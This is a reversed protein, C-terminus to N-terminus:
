GLGMHWHTGGGLFCQQWPKLQDQYVKCVSVSCERAPNQDALVLGDTDPYLALKARVVVTQQM